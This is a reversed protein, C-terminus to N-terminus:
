YAGEKRLVKLPTKFLIDLDMWLSWNQVYFVDMEIREDYAVNQRGRIQWYGTIGPKMGLVFEKLSGYKTLEIATKMRPGILSMEGRLVNFLQPLEDLSYKRIISGLYTLRPDKKLKFNQEFESKLVRDADLMEDADRKMSRFKFADFEGSQGVVRRRYIIPWGDELLVAVSLLLFLPALLVILIAAGVYDTCNKALLQM